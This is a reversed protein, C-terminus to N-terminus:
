PKWSLPRVFLESGALKRPNKGSIDVQLLEPQDDRRPDSIFMVQKGNPKCVLGYTYSHLNTLQKQRTGDPDMKWVEYDYPVKRDDIYVIQKSRVSYFCSSGTTIKKPVPKAQSSDVTMIVEDVTKSGGVSAQFIITKGDELFTACGASYYNQNTIRRLSGTKIDMVYIDYNDWTYGVIVHPAYRRYRHARTFVIKSGDPSFRPQRDCVGGDTTLQRTKNGDVSRVFIHYPGMPQHSASYAILKGASDFAPAQEFDPTNTLRRVKNTKLNMIYLDPSENGTGEFAVTNQPSVDFSVLRPTNITSKGCGTLAIFLTVICISCLSFYNVARM